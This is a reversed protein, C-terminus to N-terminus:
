NNGGLNNLTLIDMIMHETTNDILAAKQEIEGEYKLRAVKTIENGKPVELIEMNILNVHKCTLRHKNTHEKLYTSPITWYDIKKLDELLITIVITLSNIFFPVELDIHMASLIINSKLIDNKRKLINM